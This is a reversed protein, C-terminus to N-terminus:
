LHTDRVPFNSEPMRLIGLLFAKLYCGFGVGRKLVPFRDISAVSLTCIRTSEKATHNGGRHEGGADAGSVFVAGNKVVSNVVSKHQVGEPDIVYCM